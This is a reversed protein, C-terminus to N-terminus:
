RYPTVNGMADKCDGFGHHNAIDPYFALFRKWEDSGAYFVVGNNYKCHEHDLTSEMQACDSCVSKHGIITLATIVMRGKVDKDKAYSVLAKSGISEMETPHFGLRSCRGCKIDSSLLM